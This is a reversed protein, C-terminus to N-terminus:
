TRFLVPSTGSEWDIEVIFLFGIGQLSVSRDNTVRRSPTMMHQQTGLVSIFHINSRTINSM